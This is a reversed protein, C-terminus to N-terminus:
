LIIVNTFTNICNNLYCIIVFVYVHNHFDNHLKMAIVGNNSNCKIFLNAIFFNRFSGLLLNM